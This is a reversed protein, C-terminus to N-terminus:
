SAHHKAYRDLARSQRTPPVVELHRLTPEYVKELEATRAQVFRETQNIVFAQTPGPFLLVGAGLAGM